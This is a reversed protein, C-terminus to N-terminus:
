RDVAGCRGERGVVRGGTGNWGSNLVCRIVGKGDVPFKKVVTSEHISAVMSPRVSVSSARSSFYLLQLQIVCVRGRRMCVGVGRGWGVYVGSWTCVYVEVM